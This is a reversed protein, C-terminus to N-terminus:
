KVNNRPVPFIIDAANGCILLFHTDNLTVINLTLLAFLSQKITM